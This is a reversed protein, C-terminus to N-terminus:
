ASEPQLLLQGALRKLVAKPAEFTLCAHKLSHPVDNILAELQAYRSRSRLSEVLWSHADHAEFNEFLLKCERYIRTNPADPISGFHKKIAKEYENKRLCDFIAGAELRQLNSEAPRIRKIEGDDSLCLVGVNSGYTADSVIREAFRQITVINVYEFTKSYDHLQGELKDLSDYETKIEYVTTTGNVIVLDARSGGCRFESLAHSNAPDHLGFHLSSICENKFVYECRYHNFLIQYCEDLIHAVTRGTLEIGFPKTAQQLASAHTGNTIKRLFPGRFLM